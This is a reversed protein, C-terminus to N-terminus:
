TSSDPSLLAHTSNLMGSLFLTQAKFPITAVPVTLIALCAALANLPSLLTPMHIFASCNPIRKTAQLSSDLFVDRGFGLQQSPCPGDIALPTPEFFTRVSRESGYQRLFGVFSRLLAGGAQM